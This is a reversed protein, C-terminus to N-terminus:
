NAAPRSRRAPSKGPHTTAEDGNSTPAQFLPQGSNQQARRLEEIEERIIKTLKPVDAKDVPKGQRFAASLQGGSVEQLEIMAAVFDQHERLMQENEWIARSKEDDFFFAPSVKFFDALAEVKDMAPGGTMGKDNLLQGIYEPRCSRDTYIRVHAAIEDHSPLKGNRHEQGFWYRLHQLRQGFTGAPDGRDEIDAITKSFLSLIAALRDRDPHRDANGTFVKEIYPTGCKHGTVRTVHAAIEDFSLMRDRLGRHTYRLYQLKQVLSGSPDGQDEPV